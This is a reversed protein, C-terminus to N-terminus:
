RTKLFTYERLAEEDDPYQELYDKMYDAATKYDRLYECCIARNYLMSQMYLANGTEIGSSLRALANEYDSIGMYALASQLYMVCAEPHKQVYTDYLSIAYKTDGVQEYSKGLYLITSETEAKKRAEELSNMAHTYDGLYYYFIGRQDESLKGGGNMARSIYAKGDEEYGAESLDKCIRVCHDYDTPAVTITQEYDEKAGALDGQSLKIKGRLYYADAATDDMAIIADYIKIAEDSRGCNQMAVALYYSIDFDEKSVIGNSQRLSAELCDVAKGYEGQTMYAMGEGRLIMKENEGAKQATDFDALAKITDLRQLAEYASDTNPTKSTFGPLSCGTLAFLFVTAICLAAISNDNQNERRM